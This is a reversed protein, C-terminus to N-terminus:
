GVKKIILSVETLQVMSINANLHILDNWVDYTSSSLPKQDLLKM